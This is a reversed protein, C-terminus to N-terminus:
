VCLCCCLIPMGPWVKRKADSSIMVATTVEAQRQVSNVCHWYFLQPTSGLARLPRANFCLRPTVGTTWWYPMTLASLSKYVCLVADHPSTSFIVRRHCFLKGVNGNDTWVPWRLLQPLSWFYGRASSDSVVSRCILNFTRNLETVPDNGTFKWYIGSNKELFTAFHSKLLIKKFITFIRSTWFTNNYQQM